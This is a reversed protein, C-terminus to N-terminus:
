CRSKLSSFFLSSPPHPIIHGSSWWLYVIGSELEPLRWRHVDAELCLPLGGHTSRCNESLLYSTNILNRLSSNASTTSLDWKSTGFYRAHSNGRVQFIVCGFSWSTSPNGALYPVDWCPGLGDFLYSPVNLCFSSLPFFRVCQLSFICVPQPM